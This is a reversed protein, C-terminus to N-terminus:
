REIKLRTADEQDIDDADLSFDSFCFFFTAIRSQVPSRNRTLCNHYGVVGDRGM